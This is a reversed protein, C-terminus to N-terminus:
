RLLTTGHATCLLYYIYCSERMGSSNSNDCCVNTSRYANYRLTINIISNRMVPPDNLVARSLPALVCFREKQLVRVSSACAIIHRGTNRRAYRIDTNIRAQTPSDCLRLNFDQCATLCYGM